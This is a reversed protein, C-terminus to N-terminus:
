MGGGGGALCSLQLMRSGYSAHFGALIESRLSLQSDVTWANSMRSDGSDLQACLTGHHKSVNAKISISSGDAPNMPSCRWMHSDSTHRPPQLSNLSNCLERISPLAKDCWRSSGKYDKPLLPHFCIFFVVTALVPMRKAETQEAICGRIAGINKTAHRLAALPGVERNSTRQMYRASCTHLPILSM